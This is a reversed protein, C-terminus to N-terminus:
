GFRVSIGAAFGPSFAVRRFDWGRRAQWRAQATGSRLEIELELRRGKAMLGLGAFSTLREPDPALAARLRALPDSGHSFDTGFDYVALQTDRSGPRMACLLLPASAVQGQHQFANELLAMASEGLFYSESRGLRLRGRHSGCAEAYITRALIAAADTDEVSTAPVLVRADDPSPLHDQPLRCRAPLTGLMALLRRRCDPESPLWACASASTDERLHQEIAARIALATYPDAERAAKAQVLFEEDGASPPAAALNPISALIPLGAADPPLSMYPLYHGSM